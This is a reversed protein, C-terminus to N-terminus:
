MYPTRCDTIDGVQSKEVKPHTIHGKFVTLFHETLGKDYTNIKVHVTCNSVYILFTVTTPCHTLEKEAEPKLMDSFGSSLVSKLFSNAFQFRRM